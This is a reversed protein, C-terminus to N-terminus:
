TWDTDMLGPGLAGPTKEWVTTWDTLNNSVLVAADDPGCVGLFRWFRLETNKLGSCDIATTTLTDNAGNPYSWDVPSGYAGTGTHGGTALSAYVCTTCRAPTGWSWSGTATWGPDTDLPFNYILSQSFGVSTSCLLLIFIGLTLLASRM